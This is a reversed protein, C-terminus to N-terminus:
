TSSRRALVVWLAFERVWARVFGIPGLLALATAAAGFVLKWVWLASFGFVRESLAAAATAIIIVEFISWGLNQLM